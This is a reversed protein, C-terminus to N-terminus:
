STVKTTEIKPAIPIITAISTYINKGELSVVSRRPDNPSLARKLMKEEKPKLAKMSGM